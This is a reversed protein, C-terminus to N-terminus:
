LACIRIFAGNGGANAGKLVGDVPEWTSKRKMWAPKAPSSEGEEFRAELILAAPVLFRTEPKNTEAFANMSLLGFSLISIVSCHTKM